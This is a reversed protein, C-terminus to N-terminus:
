VKVDILQGVAPDAAESAADAKYNTGFRGADKFRAFLLDLAKREDASLFEAYSKPAAVALKSSSEEAQPAIMVPGDTAQRTTADQSSPPQADRRNLQQYSQIGIQNVKM